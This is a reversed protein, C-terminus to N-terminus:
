HGKVFKQPGRFGPNGELTDGMLSKEGIPTGRPARSRLSIQWGSIYGGFVSLSKGM